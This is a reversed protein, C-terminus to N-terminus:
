HAYDVSLDSTEQALIQFMGQTAPSTIAEMFVSFILMCKWGSPNRLENVVVPPIIKQINTQAIPDINKRQLYNKLATSKFLPWSYARMRVQHFRFSALQAPLPHLILQPYSHLKSNYSCYSLKMFTFLLLFRNLDIRVGATSTANM